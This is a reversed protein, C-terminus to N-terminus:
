QAIFRFVQDPVIRSGSLAYQSQFRQPSFQTISEMSDIVCYAFPSIVMVATVMLSTASAAPTDEAVAERTREPWGAVEAAERSFTWATALSNPKTGLAWARDRREVLVSVM